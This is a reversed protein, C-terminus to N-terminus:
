ADTPTLRPMSVAAGEGETSRAAYQNAFRVHKIFAADPAQALSAALAGNFADGAGTTDETQM